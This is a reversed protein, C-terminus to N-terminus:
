SKDSKDVIVEEEPPGILDIWQSEFAVILAGIGEFRNSTGGEVMGSYGMVINNVLIHYAFVLDRASYGLEQGCEPIEISTIRLYTGEILLTIDIFEQNTFDPDAVFTAEIEARLVSIEHLLEEEWPGYCGEGQAYVPQISMSFILIALILAKM